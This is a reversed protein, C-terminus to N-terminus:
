RTGERPTRQIIAINEAINREGIKRYQIRVVDGRRLDGLQRTDGAATIQCAPPVQMRVATLAHGIGTIVELMRAKTDVAAVTATLSNTAVSPDQFLHSPLVAAGSVDVCILSAAAGCCAISMILLTKRLHLHMIMM